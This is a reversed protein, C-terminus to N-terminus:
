SIIEYNRVTIDKPTLFFAWSKKATLSSCMYWNKDHPRIGSLHILPYGDNVKKSGYLDVRMSKILETLLEDHEKGSIPRASPNNKDHFRMLSSVVESSGVLILRNQADDLEAFEDKMLVNNSIAKVYKTYYEQKLNREEFKLQNKKTLYNTIIATIITVCAGVIAVIIENNM